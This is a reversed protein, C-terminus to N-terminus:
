NTHASRVGEENAPHRGERQQWEGSWASCTRMFTPEFIYLNTGTLEKLTAVCEARQGLTSGPLPMVTVVSHAGGDAPNSARNLLASVLVRLDTAIDAPMAPRIKSLVRGSSMERAVLTLADGEWFEILYEPSFGHDENPHPSGITILATVVSM